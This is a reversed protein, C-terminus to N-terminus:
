KRGFWGRKKAPAEVPVFSLVSGMGLVSQAPELAYTTEGVTIEFGAPPYEGDALHQAVVHRVINYAVVPTLGPAVFQLDTGGLHAVGITHALSATADMTAAMTNFWTQSPDESYEGVYMVATTAFDADPLWVALGNDEDAFRATVDAVVGAAQLIDAGAPASVILYATHGAAAEEIRAAIPSQSVAYRFPDADLRERVISLAVEAPGLNLTVADGTLGDPVGSTLVGVADGIATPAASLLVVSRIETNQEAM